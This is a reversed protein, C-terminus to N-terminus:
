GEFLLWVERMMAAARHCVNGYLLYRDTNRLPNHLGSKPCSALSRAFPKLEDVSTFPITMMPEGNLPDM